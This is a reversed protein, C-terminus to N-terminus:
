GLTSQLMIVIGSAFSALNATIAYFVRRKKTHGELYKSFLISETILIVWEFAAYALVALMIGKYFVSINIILSLLLQTAMNIIIFPKWNKKLSFRFLLLILGEIILTTLGTAIFQKITPLIYNEEKILKTNCDFRVVTNFAKRDLVNESVIIENDGTVIIIKFRDPVGLYSFSHRKLSGEDIGALKGFLPVRTGTVLAPRWGDVNYNKLTYFIDKFELEEEEIYQYLHESTYDVLLDLYYLSKPANEVLIELTPKPGMDGYVKGFIVMHFTLIILFLVMIKRRM